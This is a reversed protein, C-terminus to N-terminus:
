ALFLFVQKNKDFICPIVQASVFCALLCCMCHVALIVDVTVLLKAKEDMKEQLSKTNLRGLAGRDMSLM